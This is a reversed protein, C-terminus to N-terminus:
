EPFDADRAEMIADEDAGYFLAPPFDPIALWEETCTPTWQFLGSWVRPKACGMQFFELHMDKFLDMDYRDYDVLKCARESLWREPVMNRTTYVRVPIGDYDSNAVFDVPKALWLHFGYGFINELVEPPLRSGLYLRLGDPSAM